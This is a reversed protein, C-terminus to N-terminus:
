ARHGDISMAPDSVQENPTSPSSQLPLPREMSDSRHRCMKLDFSGATTGGKDDEIEVRLKSGVPM